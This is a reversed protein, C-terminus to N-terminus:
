APSPRGDVADIRVKRRRRSSDRWTFTDGPRLGVLAAGLSNTVVVDGEASAEEPYVLRVEHATCDELDTFRVHSGMRVLGNPAQDGPVLTARELEQWLLRIGATERESRCVLDSLPEYEVDLVLVDPAPRFDTSHFL